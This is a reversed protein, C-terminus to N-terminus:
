RDIGPAAAGRRRRAGGARASRAGLAAAARRPRRPAPHTVRGRVPAAVYSYLISLSTALPAPKEATVKPAHAVKDNNPGNGSLEGYSPCVIVTCPQTSAVVVLPNKM